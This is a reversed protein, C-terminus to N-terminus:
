TPRFPRLAQLGAAGLRSKKSSWTPQPARCHRKMPQKIMFLSQIESVQFAHISLHRRATFSGSQEEFNKKSLNISTRDPHTNFIFHFHFHFISSIHFHIFICLFSHFRSSPISNASSICVLCYSFRKRDRRQYALRAVMFLFGAPFLVAEVPVGRITKPDRCYAAFTNLSGTTRRM